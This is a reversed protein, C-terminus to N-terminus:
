FCGFVMREGQGKRKLGAPGIDEVSAAWWVYMIAGKKLSQVSSCGALGRRGAARHSPEWAAGRKKILWAWLIELGLREGGKGCAAAVRKKGEEDVRAHV